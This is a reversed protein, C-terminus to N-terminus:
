REKWSVWDSSPLSSESSTWWGMKIFVISESHSIDCHKPFPFDEGSIKIEKYFEFLQPNCKGKAWSGRKQICSVNINTSPKFIKFYFRFDRDESMQDEIFDSELGHLLLSTSADLGGYVNSDTDDDQLVSENVKSNRNSKRRTPSKVPSRESLIQKNKTKRPSVSKSKVTRKSSSNYKKKSRSSHEKTEGGIDGVLQSEDFQTVVTESRKVNEKIKKWILEKESIDDFVM